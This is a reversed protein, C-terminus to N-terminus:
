GIREIAERQNHISVENCDIAPERQPYGVWTNPANTIGDWDERQRSRNYRDIVEEVSEIVTEISLDQRYPLFEVLERKDAVTVNYYSGYRCALKRTTIPGIGRIQGVPSVQDSAGLFSPETLQEIQVNFETATRVREMENEVHEVVRSLSCTVIPDVFTGSIVYKPEETNQKQDEDVDFAQEYGVQHRIRIENTCEIWGYVDEIHEPWYALQVQNSPYEYRGGHTYQRRSAISLPLPKRRFVREYVEWEDLLDASIEGLFDDIEDTWTNSDAFLEDRLSM